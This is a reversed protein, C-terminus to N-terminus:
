APHTVTVPGGQDIQREFTPVVGEVESLVPSGRSGLVNGFRVATFLIESKPNRIKGRVRDSARQNASEGNAM